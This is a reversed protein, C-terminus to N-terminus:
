KPIEGQRLTQMCELWFKAESLLYIRRDLLFLWDGVEKIGVKRGNQLGKNYEEIILENAEM